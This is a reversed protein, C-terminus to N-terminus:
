RRQPKRSSTLSFGPLDPQTMKPKPPAVPAPKPVVPKAPTTPKPVFAPPPVVPKPVVAPTTTAAPGLPRGYVLSYFAADLEKRFAKPSMPTKDTLAASLKKPDIKLRALKAAATEMRALNILVNTLGANKQLRAYAAVAAKRMHRSVVYAKDWALDACQIFSPGVNYDATVESGVKLMRCTHLAWGGAVPVLHATPHASHNVMSGMKTIAIDPTFEIALGICTGAPVDQTLRVGNGHIDSPGITYM